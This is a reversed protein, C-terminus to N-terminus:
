SHEHPYKKRREEHVGDHGPQNANVYVDSDGFDSLLSLSAQEKM